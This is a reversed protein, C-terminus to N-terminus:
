ISEITIPYSTTGAATTYLLIFSGSKGSVIGIIVKDGNSALVVAKKSDSISWIGNSGNHITYTYKEYPSVNCPGTIHMEDEPSPIPTDEEIPEESEEFQNNFTEKVIAVIVGNLLMNKNQVEYNNGNIKVINFRKFYDITAETKPLTLVINSNMDNWIIGHKQNWVLEQPANMTLNAKVSTGNIDLESNCKYCDGRFYAYEEIEEYAVIWDTATEEWTFIDGVQLNILDIDIGEAIEAPPNLCTDKYPISIQKYDNNLNLRVPNMLCKFKRGDALVATGAQYSYLLAKKLSKLKDAIMRDQQVPGGVYNLRTELNNLGSM